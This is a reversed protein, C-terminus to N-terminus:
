RWRLKRRGERSGDRGAAHPVASIAIPGSAGTRAQSSTEPDDASREEALKDDMEPTSSLSFMTDSAFGPGELDVALLSPEAAALAKMQRSGSLAFYVSCLLVTLLFRKTDLVLSVIASVCRAKRRAYVVRHKVEDMKRDIYRMAVVTMVGTVLVVAVKVGTAKADSGVKAPRLCLVRIHATLM